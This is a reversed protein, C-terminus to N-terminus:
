YLLKRKNLELKKYIRYVRKHNWKSNTKNKIYKMCREFGWGKNNTTLEILLKEIKNNEDNNIPRYNFGNQKVQFLESAAKGTLEKKNVAEKALERRKQIEPLETKIVEIASNCKEVLDENQKKLQRNQEELNRLHEIQIATMLGFKKKWKYYISKSIKYKDEIQSPTMNEESEQLISYIEYSSYKYKTM